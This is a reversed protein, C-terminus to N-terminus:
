KEEKRLHDKMKEFKYEERITKGLSEIKLKINTTNRFPGPQSLQDKLSEFQATLSSFKAQKDAVLLKEMEQLQTLIQDLDYLEQKASAAQELGILLERQWVKWMSYHKQYEKLPSYIPEPYDIPELIPIVESTDQQDKKKQRIFKKRLSECGMSTFLFIILFSFVASRKFIFRLAGLIKNM